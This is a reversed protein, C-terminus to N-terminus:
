TSGRFECQLKAQVSSWIEKVERSQGASGASFFTIPLEAMHVFPLKVASIHEVFISFPEAKSDMFVSRFRDLAGKLTAGKLGFNMKVVTQSAHNNSALLRNRVCRM